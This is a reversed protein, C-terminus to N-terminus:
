LSHAACRCALQRRSAEGGIWVPTSLLVCQDIVQHFERNEIPCPVASHVHRVDEADAKADKPLTTDLRGFLSTGWRYPQWPSELADM